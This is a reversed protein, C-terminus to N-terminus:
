DPQVPPEAASSSTEAHSLIWEEMGVGKTALVDFVEEGILFKDSTVLYKPSGSTDRIRAIGTDKDDALIKWVMRSFKKGGNLHMNLIQTLKPM